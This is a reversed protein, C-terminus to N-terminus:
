DLCGLAVGTATKPGGCCAAHVRIHGEELLVAVGHDSQRLAVTGFADCIRALLIPPEVQPANTTCCGVQCFM